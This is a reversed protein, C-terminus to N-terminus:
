SLLTLRLSSAGRARLLFTAITTPAFCGTGVALCYHYGYPRLMALGFCSLLSLRLPSAGRARRCYLLTLRLPSADRVRRCSLLTLPLPSAGLARLLITTNATPAFCRSGTALFYLFYYSRLVM